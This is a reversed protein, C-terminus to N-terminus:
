IRLRTNGGLRFGALGVCANAPQRRSVSADLWAAASSHRRASLVHIPTLREPYPQSYKMRPRRSTAERRSEVGSCASTDAPSECRTHEAAHLSATIVIIVSALPLCTSSFGRWFFFGRCTPAKKIVAPPALRLRVPRFPKAPRQMVAKSDRRLRVASGDCHVARVVPKCIQEIAPRDVLCFPFSQKGSHRSRSVLSSSAVEVKALNREVM